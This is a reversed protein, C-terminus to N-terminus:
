TFDLFRVFCRRFFCLKMINHVAGMKRAGDVIAFLQRALFYLYTNQLDNALDTAQTTVVLGVCRMLYIRFRM